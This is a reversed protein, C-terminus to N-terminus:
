YLPLLNPWMKERMCISKSQEKHGWFRLSSVALKGFKRWSNGLGELILRWFSFVCQVFVRKKKFQVSVVSLAERKSFLCFFGSFVACVALCRM